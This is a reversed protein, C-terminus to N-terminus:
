KCLLIVMNVISKKRLAAYFGIPLLTSVIGRWIIIIYAVIGNTHTMYFEAFDARKEYMDNELMMSFDLSGQILYVYILSGVAVLFTMVRMAGTFVSNNWLEETANPNM